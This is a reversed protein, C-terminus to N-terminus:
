LPKIASVKISLVAEAFENITEDAIKLSKIIAQSSPDTVVDNLPFVDEQNVIVKTFGVSKITALYDEKKSAGAVCGVYAEISNKLAPPLAKTL